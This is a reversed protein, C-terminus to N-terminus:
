FFFLGTIYYLSVCQADVNKGDKVNADIPILYNKGESQCGHGLIFILNCNKDYKFYICVIIYVYM